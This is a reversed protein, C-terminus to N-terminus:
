RRGGTARMCRWRTTAPSSGACRWPTRRICSAASWGTAPGCCPAPSSPPGPISDPRSCVGVYDALAPPTDELLRAIGARWEGTRDAPGSDLTYHGIGAHTDLVAFPAPKRALARLIWVLLAHKMCDAFNGAHYAHRYNM